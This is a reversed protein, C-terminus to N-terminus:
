SRTHSALLATIAKASLWGTQEPVEPGYSCYSIAFHTAAWNILKGPRATEDLKSLALEKIGCHQAQMLTEIGDAEDMNAPMVIFRRTCPLQNWLKLQRQLSGPRKGAWGEGDILLLQASKTQHLATKINSSSKLPILPAGLVEAYARLASLGGIRETDTSMFAVSIGKLSFHTALKAAMTTKGGGSPGTLLVIERKQLPDIKPGWRLLPKAIPAQKAFDDAMDSAYNPAVGLKILNDFAIMSKKGTFAARLGDMEQKGLGEVIRELRNMSATLRQHLDDDVRRVQVPPTAGHVLDNDRAAHIHWIEEGHEDTCKHRDLIVADPGLDQRARALAEHLRPASIVKIQM